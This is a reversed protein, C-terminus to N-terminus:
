RFHRALIASATDRGDARRLDDLQMVPLTAPDGIDPSRLAESSGEILQSRPALRSAMSRRVLDFPVMTLLAIRLDARLTRLRAIVEVPSQEVQPTMGTSILAGAVQPDRVADFTSTGNHGRSDYGIGDFFLHIPDMIQPHARAVVITRMANAVGAHRRGVM